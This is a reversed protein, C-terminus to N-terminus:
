TLEQLCRNLYGRSEAAIGMQRSLPYTFAGIMVLSLAGDYGTKKLARLIKPFDIKGRGPIQDEPSVPDQNPDPYDRIHSHIIKKGLKAIVVADDEGAKFTERPDLIAGLAPSKVANFLQILTELNYVSAGKHYKVALKVGRSEAQECLKGIYTFEQKTLEKDGTKGSAPIAILPISLKEAVDFMKEVSKVKEDMTNGEVDLHIALLEIGHKKATWKIGDLYSQNTDAEIHRAFSKLCALEAGDYGAWALHQLAGYIDLQNFLVTSCSIKM